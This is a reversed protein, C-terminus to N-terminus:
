SSSPKIFGKCGTVRGNGDERDLQGPAVVDDREPCHAAVLGSVIFITGDEKEPLGILASNYLQTIRFPHELGEVDVSRLFKSQSSVRVRGESPLVVIGSGDTLRLKHGTLNILKM